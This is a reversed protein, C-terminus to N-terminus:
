WLGPTRSCPRCKKPWGNWGRGAPSWATDKADCQPCVRPKACSFGCHHCVLKEGKRHEVLWASCHPCEMRHGCSACLTLPAYGRRNLYLLSQEGRELNQRMAEKLPASLWTGARPRHQRLDIAITEPLTAGGHRKGLYLWDYKGSEANLITELSPTASALIVPCGAQMARVVAMDRGHYIVGEEQKFTASHEEDVVILQLDQFPLFLASRAGVVVRAQGTIIAWWARRRRAPGLESHWVVPAAGFRQEFRYLWQATLSIEPLLVLIQAADTKLAAAIAEFYVETKGSGTIGELLVPKFKDAAVMQQLHNVAQQQEPSLVPGALNADPPPFAEDGTVTVPIMQGARIMGRVVGDGVAALEAWARLTMPMDLTVAAVVARRGKTLKGATLRGATLKEPLDPSLRYLIKKKPEPTAQPVTVAMKLVAGPPSLTYAAVWDIFKRVSDPLPPLDLRASVAKLKDPAVATKQPSMTWVVGMLSRHGLPVRVFDGAAVAIAGDVLYDFPGSLPLPLLVQIRRLDSAM